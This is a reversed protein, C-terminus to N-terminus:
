SFNNTNSNENTLLKITISLIHSSASANYTLVINWLPSLYKQEKSNRPSATVLAGLNGFSSHTHFGGLKNVDKCILVREKFVQSGVRKGTIM